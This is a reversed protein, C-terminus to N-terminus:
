ERLGRLDAKEIILDLHKWMEYPYAMENADAESRFLSAKFEAYEKVYMELKKRNGTHLGFEVNAIRDALKLILAARSALIKPHTKEARERRNRGLEDTVAYVIDAIEKSFERVIDNYSVDTDEITDHLWAACRLDNFRGYGFRNVVDEVYALHMTYSSAGDYAQDGHAKTAFSVAKVYLMTGM